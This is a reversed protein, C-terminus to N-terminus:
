LTLAQGDIRNCMAVVELLFIEEFAWKTTESLAVAWFGLYV